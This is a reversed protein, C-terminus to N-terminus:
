TAGRISFIMSSTDADPASLWAQYTGASTVQRYENVDSYETGNAYTWGPDAGSPQWTMRLKAILLCGPNVTTMSITAHQSSSGTYPAVNFNDFPNSGATSAGSISYVHWNPQSSNLTIVEATRATSGNFKWLVQGGRYNYFANNFTGLNPSSATRPADLSYGTITIVVLENAGINIPHSTGDPSFTSRTEATVVPATSTVPPNTFTNVGWATMYANIIKSFEIAQLNTLAGGLAMMMINDSSQRTPGGSSNMCALGLFKQNPVGTSVTDVRGFPAGDKLGNIFSSVGRNVIYLGPVTPATTPGNGNNLQIGNSGTGVDISAVKTNTSDVTGMACTSSSSATKLYVLLM